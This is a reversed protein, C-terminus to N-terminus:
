DIEAQQLQHLADALKGSEAFIAAASIRVSTVRDGNEVEGGARLAHQMAEPARHMDGLEYLARGITAWADRVLARDSPSSQLLRQAEVIAQQPHSQVLHDLRQAVSPQSSRRVSAPPSSNARTM